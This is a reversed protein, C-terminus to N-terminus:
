CARALVHSTAASGANRSALDARTCKKTTKPADSGDRSGPRVTLLVSRLCTMLTSIFTLSLVLIQRSMVLLPRQSDRVLASHPSNRTLFAKPLLGLFHAYRTLHQLARLACIPNLALLPLFDLGQLSPLSVRSHPFHYTGLQVAKGDDRRQRSSLSCMVRPM